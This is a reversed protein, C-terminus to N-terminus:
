RREVRVQFRSALLHASVGVAIALLVVLPWPAWDAWRGHLWTLMGQLPSAPAIRFTLQSAAGAGVGAAAGPVAVEASLLAGYDGPPADPPLQLTVEVHDKHGSELEFEAPSFRFWRPDAATGLETLGGVRMGYTGAVSGPNRVGISPLRYTGGPTLPQDVEIAGVDVAVGVDARVPATGHGLGSLAVVAALVVGARVLPVRADAM